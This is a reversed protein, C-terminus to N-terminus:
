NNNSEDNDDERQLNEKELEKVRKAFADKAASEHALDTELNAIRASLRGIVDTLNYSVEKM